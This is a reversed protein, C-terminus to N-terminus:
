NDDSNETGFAQFLRYRLPSAPHHAQGDESDLGLAACVLRRATDVDTEAPPLRQPSEGCALHCDQLAPVARMAEVLADRILNMTTLTEPMTAVIDSANRAGATCEEDEKDQREKRAQPTEGRDVHRHIRGGDALAVRRRSTATLAWQAMLGILRKM